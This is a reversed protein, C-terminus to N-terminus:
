ATSARPQARDRRAQRSEYLRELFTYVILEQQQAAARFLRNAFMHAYSAALEVRGSGM